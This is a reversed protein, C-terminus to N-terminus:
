QHDQSQWVWWVEGFGGFVPMFKVESRISWSSTWTFRWVITRKCHNFAFRVCLCESITSSCVSVSSHWGALWGDVLWSLVSPFHLLHCDAFCRFRLFSSVSNMFCVHSYSAINTEIAHVSGGGAVWGLLEGWASEVIPVRHNQSSHSINNIDHM